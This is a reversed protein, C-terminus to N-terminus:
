PLDNHNFKLGLKLNQFKLSVTRKCIQHQTDWSTKYLLPQSKKMWVDEGLRTRTVEPKKSYAGECMYRESATDGRRGDEPKTRWVLKTKVAEQHESRSDVGAKLKM